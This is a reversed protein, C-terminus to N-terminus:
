AAVRQRASLTAIHDNLVDALRQIDDGRIIISAEAIRLSTFSDTGDFWIAKIPTEPRVHVNCSITAM